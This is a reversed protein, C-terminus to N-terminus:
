SFYLIYKRLPHRCSCRCGFHYKQHHRAGNLRLEIRGYSDVRGISDIWDGCAAPRRLHRKLPLVKAIVHLIIAAYRVLVFSPIVVLIARPALGSHRFDAVLACAFIRRPCRLRHIHRFQYRNSRSDNSFNGCYRHVDTPHDMRAHRNRERHPCCPTAEASAGFFGIKLYSWILRLYIMRKEEKGLRKHAKMAFYYGAAGGAVIYLIPNSVVPLKSWIMLAVLAPIWAMKWGIGASKATTFVPAVILAVVVPRIGKFIATLTPNSIITEPTLFMAIM